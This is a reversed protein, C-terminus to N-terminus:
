GLFLKDLDDLIRDGIMKRGVAALYCETEVGLDYTDAVINRSKGLVFADCDENTGHCLAVIVERIVDLVIANSDALEIETGANGATLETMCRLIDPAYELHAM